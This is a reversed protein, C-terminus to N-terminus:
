SLIFILVEVRKSFSFRAMLQESLSDYLSCMINRIMDHDTM